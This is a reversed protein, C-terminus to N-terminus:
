CLMAVLLCRHQRLYTLVREIQAAPKQPLQTDQQKSLVLILEPLLESLPLALRLSRWIVYEFQGCVQKACKVSLATKGVGGIGLLAVLRCRDQVIWRKLLAQEEM